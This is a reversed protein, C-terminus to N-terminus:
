EFVVVAKPWCPSAARRYQIRHTNERARELEDREEGGKSDGGEEREAEM